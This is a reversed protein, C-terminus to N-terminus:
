TRRRYTYHLARKYSISKFSSPSVSLPSPAVSSERMQLRFYSSPALLSSRFRILSSSMFPYPSSQWASINRHRAAVLFIDFQPVDFTRPSYAYLRQVLMLIIGILSSLGMGNVIAISNDPPGTEDDMLQLISGPIHVSALLFVFM